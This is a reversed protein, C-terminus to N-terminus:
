LCVLDLGLTIFVWDFTNMHSVSRQACFMTTLQQTQFYRMNLFHRTALIYSVDFIIDSISLTKMKFCQKFFSVQPNEPNAFLKIRSYLYTNKNGLDLLCYTMTTLYTNKRVNLICLIYWLREGNFLIRPIGLRRPNTAM